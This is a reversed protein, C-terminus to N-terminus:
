AVCEPSCSAIPSTEVCLTPVDSPGCAAPFCSLAVTLQPENEAANGGGIVRGQQHPTLRRLTEKRMRLKKSQKM